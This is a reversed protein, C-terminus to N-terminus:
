LQVATRRIRQRLPDVTQYPIHASRYSDPQRLRVTYVVVVIGMPAISARCSRKERTVGARQKGAVFRRAGQGALEYTPKRDRAGVDNLYPCSTSAGRRNERVSGMRRVRAVESSVDDQREDRQDIVQPATGAIVVVVGATLIAGAQYWWTNVTGDRRRMAAGKWVSYDVEVGRSPCCAHRRRDAPRPRTSVSTCLPNLPPFTNLFGLLLPYNYLFPPFRGFLSLRPYRRWFFVYPLGFSRCPHIDICFM